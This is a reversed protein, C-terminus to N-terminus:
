AADRLKRWTAACGPEGFRLLAAYVAESSTNLVFIYCSDIVQFEVNGTAPAPFDAPINGVPEPMAALDTKIGGYPLVLHFGGSGISFDLTGDGDLDLGQGNNVVTSPLIIVRTNASEGDFMASVICEGRKTPRFARRSAPLQGSSDSLFGLDPDSISWEIPEGTIESGAADVMMIKADWFGANEVPEAVYYVDQATFARTITQTESTPSEWALHFPKRYGGCGALGAILLVILIFSLTRIARM